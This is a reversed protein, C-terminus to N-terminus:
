KDKLQKELEEIRDHLNLLAKNFHQKTGEYLIVQILLLLFISAIILTEITTM